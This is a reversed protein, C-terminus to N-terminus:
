YNNWVLLENDKKDNENGQKVNIARRALFTEYNCNNEVYALLDEHPYNSMLIKNSSTLFLNILKKQEDISFDDKNYKTFSTADKPYYPPDVYVFDDKKLKNLVIKYDLNTILVNRSNFYKSLNKINEEDCILPNSYDGFPVNFKGTSNERYLGRFCTKNLFIFIAAKEVPEQKELDLARIMYFFDENDINKKPKGNRARKKEPERNKHKKMDMTLQKLKAILADPYVKIINYMNFLHPNIDNIWLNDPKINMFVSGGGVFPEVFRAYKENVIKNKIKEIFQTKGGAWKIVPKLRVDNMNRLTPLKKKFLKRNATEFTM